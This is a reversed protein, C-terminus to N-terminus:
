RGLYARLRGAGDLLDVTCAGSAIERQSARGQREMLRDAYDRDRIGRYVRTRSEHPTGHHRTIYISYPEMVISWQHNVRPSGLLDLPGRRTENTIVIYGYRILRGRRTRTAVVTGVKSSQRIDSLYQRILAVM